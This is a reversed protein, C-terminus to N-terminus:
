KKRVSPIKLTRLYAKKEDSIRYSEVAKQISKNQIWPALTRSEILPLATEYQKVLAISYYWAIAMNIYYEERHIDAVLDLMEPRFQEDLYFQLLSVVGFRVTYTHESKLWVKIRDYVMEPYKKFIKPSIVDCVAWNEIYPLFVELYNLVVSIDAKMSGIIYGHLVNEEQYSHPLEQLFEEWYGSKQMEKALSKLQPSRVGIVKEKDTDPILKANFDRYKLDQMEFLRRTIQEM